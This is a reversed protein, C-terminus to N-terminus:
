PWGCHPREDGPTRCPAAPVPSRSGRPGPVAGARVCAAGASSASEASGARSEGLHQDAEEERVVSEGDCTFEKVSTSKAKTVGVSTESVHLYGTAMFAFAVHHDRLPPREM